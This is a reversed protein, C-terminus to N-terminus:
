THWIQLLTITVATATWIYGVEIDLQTSVKTDTFLITSKIKLTAVDIVGNAITAIMVVSTEIVYATVATMNKATAFAAVAIWLM